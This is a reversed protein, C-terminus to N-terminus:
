PKTHAHPKYMGEFFRVFPKTVVTKSEPHLVLGRCIQVNPNSPSSSSHYNFIELSTTSEINKEVENLLVLQNVLSYLEDFSYSMTPHILPHRKNPPNAASNEDKKMKDDDIIRTLHTVLRGIPYPDQCIKELWDITDDSNPAPKDHRLFLPEWASMKKNWQCEMIRGFLKIESSGEESNSPISCLALRNVCRRKGNELEICSIDCHILGEPQWKFLLPDPGFTYPTDPTFVLGDCPYPVNKSSSLCFFIADATSKYHEKITVKVALKETGFGEKPAAEFKKEPTALGDSSAEEMVAGVDKSIPLQSLAVRRESFPWKWLIEGALALVDFSLFVNTKLSSTTKPHIDSFSTSPLLEGDLVTNNPLDNSPLQCPYIERKRNILFSEENIKVLLFRVGDSKVTVHYRTPNAVWTVDDDNHVFSAPLAFDFRTIDLLSLLFALMNRVKVADILQFYISNSCSLVPYDNMIADKYFSDKNLSLVNMKKYYNFVDNFKKRWSHFYAIASGRRLSDRPEGRQKWRYELEGPNVNMLLARTIEFCYKKAELTIYEAGGLDKVCDLILVRHTKSVKFAELTKNIMKHCILNMTQIDPEQWPSLIDRKRLEEGTSLFMIEHDGKLALASKGFSTKGSGSPGLVILIRKREDSKPSEAM